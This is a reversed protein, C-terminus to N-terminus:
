YNAPKLRCLSVEVGTRIMDKVCAQFVKPVGDAAAADKATFTIYYIVGAVGRANVRVVEVLEYNTGHDKNYKELALESFDACERWYEAEPGELDFKGRLFAVLAGMMLDGDSDEESEGECDFLGNDYYYRTAMGCDSSDTKEQGSGESVSKRNEEDSGESTLKQKKEPREPSVRDMPPLLHTSSAM